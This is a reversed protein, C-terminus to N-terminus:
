ASKPGLVNGVAEVNNAAYVVAAAIAAIVIMQKISPM